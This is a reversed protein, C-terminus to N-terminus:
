LGSEKRWAKFQTFATAAALIEAPTRVNERVGQKPRGEMVRDQFTPKHIRAYARAESLTEEFGDVDGILNKFKLAEPNRCKAQIRKQIHQVVLRIDEATWKKLSWVEWM